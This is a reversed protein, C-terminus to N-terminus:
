PRRKFERMMADALDGVRRHEDESVEPLDVYRKGPKRATVIASPRATPVPSPKRDDNAAPTASTGARQVVAPTAPTSKVPAPKTAPKQEADALDEVTVRKKDRITVIAPVELAVAKKRRPPPKYRYHSSVIRTM